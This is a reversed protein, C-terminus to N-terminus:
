DCEAEPSFLSTHGVQGMSQPLLGVPLDPSSIKSLEPSERGQKDM